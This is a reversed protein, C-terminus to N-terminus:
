LGSGNTPLLLTEIWIAFSLSRIVTDPSTTLTSGAVIYRTRSSFPWSTKPCIEPFIRRCKMLIVVPSLTVTSILGVSRVFPRM